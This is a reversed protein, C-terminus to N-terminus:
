AGGGTVHSALFADLGARDILRRKGVKASRVRGSVVLEFMLTRGLGSYTVANAVTLWAPQVTVGAVRPARSQDNATMM